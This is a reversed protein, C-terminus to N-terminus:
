NGKDNTTVDSSMTQVTSTLQQKKEVTLQFDVHSAKNIAKDYGDLESLNKRADSVLCPCRQSM